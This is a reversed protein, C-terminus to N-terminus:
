EAARSHHKRDQLHTWLSQQLGEAASLSCGSAQAKYSRTQTYWCSPQTEFAPQTMVSALIFLLSTVLRAVEAFNGAAGTDNKKWNILDKGTAANKTINAAALLLSALQAEKLAFNGRDRDM